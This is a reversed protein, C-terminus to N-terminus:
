QVVQVIEALRPMFNGPQISSQISNQKVSPSYLDAFSFVLYACLHIAKLLQSLSPYFFPFYM